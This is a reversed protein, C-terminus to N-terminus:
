IGTVYFGHNWIKVLLRFSFFLQTGKWLIIETICNGYASNNTTFRGFYQQIKWEAEPLWYINAGYTSRSFDPLTCKWSLTQIDNWTHIYTTRRSMISARAIIPAAWLSKTDLLQVCLPLGPLFHFMRYNSLYLERLRSIQKISAPFSGFDNGTVRGIDEPIEM